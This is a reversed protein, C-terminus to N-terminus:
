GPLPGGRALVEAILRAQRISPESQGIEWRYITSPAVGIWVGLEAQSISAAERLERLEAGTDNSSALAIIAAEM